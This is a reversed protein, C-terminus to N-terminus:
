LTYDIEPYKLTKEPDWPDSAVRDNVRHCTIIVADLLDGYVNSSIQPNLVTKAMLRVRLKYSGM